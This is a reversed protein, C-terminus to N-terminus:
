LIKDLAHDSGSGTKKLPRIRIRNKKLPRIRIRIRMLIIQIRLVASFPRMSINLIITEFILSVRDSHLQPLWNQFSKFRIDRRILFSIRIPKLGDNLHNSQHFFRYDLIEHCHEKLCYIIAPFYKQWLEQQKNWFCLSSM